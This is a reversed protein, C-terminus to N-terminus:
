LIMTAAVEVIVDSVLFFRVLGVVSFPNPRREEIWLHSRQNPSHLNWDENESYLPLNKKKLTPWARTTHTSEPKPTCVTRLVEFNRKLNSYSTSGVWPPFM